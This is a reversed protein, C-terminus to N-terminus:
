ISWLFFNVVPKDLPGFYTENWWMLLLFCNLRRITIIRTDISVKTKIIRTEFSVKSCFLLVIMDGGSALLCFIVYSLPLPLLVMKLLGVSMIYSLFFFFFVLNYRSFGDVGDRKYSITSLMIIDIWGIMQRVVRDVDCSEQSFIYSYYQDYQTLISSYLKSYFHLACFEM